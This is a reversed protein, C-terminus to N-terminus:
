ENIAPTKINPVHSISSRGNYKFTGNSERNHFHGIQVVLPKTEPANIINKKPRAEDGDVTGNSLYISGQKSPAPTPPM